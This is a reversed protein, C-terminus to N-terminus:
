PTAECRDRVGARGAIPQGDRDYVTATLLRLGRSSPGFAFAAVAECVGLAADRDAAEAKALRTLAQAEHDVVRVEEVAGIWSTGAFAGSGIFARLRETAQDGAPSPTATPLPRITPTAPPAATPGGCGGALLIVALGLGSLM